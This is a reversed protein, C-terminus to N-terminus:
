GDRGRRMYEDVFFRGDPMFPWDPGALGSQLQEWPMWWGDAVEEPQHVIPGHRAPDYFAEFACALYSTREDTYWVRFLPHLECDRVGLEEALERPAGEDPTEGAQLVGGAWVDHLGPYHDKTDTRRHVYVRGRDDRLLVKTAAHPLNELRMRSRPATGTVRGDLDGPAYLDVIEDM